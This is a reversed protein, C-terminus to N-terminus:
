TENQRQSHFKLHMSLEDMDLPKIMYGCAGLRFMEDIVHRNVFATVLLVKTTKPIKAHRMFWTGDHEPMMYDVLAFDYDGSEIMPIAQQANSACDVTHNLRELVRKLASRINEEDDLLLIKM